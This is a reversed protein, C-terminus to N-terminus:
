YMYKNILMLVGRPSRTITDKAFLSVSNVSCPFRVEDCSDEIMSKIARVVLNSGLFVQFTLM